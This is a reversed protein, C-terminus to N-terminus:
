ASKQANQTILVCSEFHQEFNDVYVLREFKSTTKTTRSALITSLYWIPLKKATKQYQYGKVIPANQNLFSETSKRCERTKMKQWLAYKFVRFGRFIKMLENKSTNLSNIQNQASQYTNRANLVCSQFQQEFDGILVKQQVKLTVKETILALITSLYYISKKKATKQYHYGKVVPAKQNLFSETSEWCKRTKMKQWLAYESVRFGRFIKM